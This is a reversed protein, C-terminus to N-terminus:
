IIRANKENNRAFCIIKKGKKNVSNQINLSEINKINHLDINKDNVFNSEELLTKEKAINKKQLYEKEKSNDKVNEKSDKNIIEFDAKALKRNKHKGKKKIDKNDLNDKLTNDKLNINDNKSNIQAGGVMEKEIIKSTFVPIPHIVSDKTYHTKDLNVINIVKNNQEIKQNENRLLCDKLYIKNNENNNM